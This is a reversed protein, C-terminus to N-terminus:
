GAAPRLKALAQAPPLPATGRTPAHLKAIASDLGKAGAAAGPIAPRSAPQTAPSPAAVAGTTGMCVLLAVSRMSHITMSSARQFPAVVSLAFWGRIFVSSRPHILSDTDM